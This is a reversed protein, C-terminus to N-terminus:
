NLVKGPPASHAMARLWKGAFQIMSPPVNQGRTRALDQVTYALAARLLYYTNPKTLLFERMLGTSTHEYAVLAAPELDPDVPADDPVKGAAELRRLAREGADTVERVYGMVGFRSTTQSLHSM